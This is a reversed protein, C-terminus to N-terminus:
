DYVFSDSEILGHVQQVKTACSELRKFISRSNPKRKKSRVYQKRNNKEFAQMGLIYLPRDTYFHIQDCDVPRHNEQGCFTCPVGLISYENYILIDDKIM